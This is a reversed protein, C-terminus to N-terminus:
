QQTTMSPNSQVMNLSNIFKTRRAVSQKFSWLFKNAQLCKAQRRGFWCLSTVSQAPINPSTRHWGWNYKSINWPHLHHPCGFSCLWWIEACDFPCWVGCRRPYQLCGPVSSNAEDEGKPNEMLNLYILTWNDPLSTGLGGCTAPHIVVRGARHPIWWSM